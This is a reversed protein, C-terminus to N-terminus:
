IVIRLLRRGDALIEVLCFFEQHILVGSVQHRVDDYISLCYSQGALSITLLQLFLFRLLLRRRRLQTLWQLHYLLYMFPRTYATITGNLVLSRSFAIWSM